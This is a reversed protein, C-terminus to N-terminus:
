VQERKKPTTIRRHKEDSIKVTTMVVTVDPFKGTTPTTDKEFRSFAELGNEVIKDIDGINEYDTTRLDNVLESIYQAEASKRDPFKSRLYATLTDLNLPQSFIDAETGKEFVDSIQEQKEERREFFLQFHKDAVYFMGSLAYFDRKLEKPIDQDTKYDLLAFYKGM